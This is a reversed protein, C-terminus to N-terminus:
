RAARRWARAATSRLPPSSRSPPPSFSSFFSDLPHTALLYTSSRLFFWLLLQQALRDILLSCVVCRSAVGAGYSALAGWQGLRRACGVWRSEWLGLEWAPATTAAHHRHGAVGGRAQAREGAQAEAVAAVYAAQAEQPRGAAELALGRRTAPRRALSAAVGRAGDEDGLARCGDLLLLLWKEREAAAALVSRAEEAKTKTAAKKHQQQQQQQQQQQVDVSETHRRHPHHHHHHHHDSKNGGSGGGGGGGGGGGKAVGPGADCHRAAHEALPMIAHWAAAGYTAGVFRLVEVPLRPVPSCGLLGLLLPKVVSTTGALQAAEAAGGEGARSAIAEALAGGAAAAM